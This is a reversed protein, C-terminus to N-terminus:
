PNRSESREAPIVALPRHSDRRSCRSGSRRSSRRGARTNAPSRRSPRTRGRIWCRSSVRHSWCSRSRRSRGDRQPDRRGAGQHHGEARRRARVARQLERGGHGAIRGRDRDPHRARGCAAQQRRDRPHPGQRRRPIAAAARRCEADDDPHPGLRSRDRRAGLGQLSHPHDDARRDIGQVARGVSQDHHRRRGLRLEAQRPQGQRLRHVGQPDERAGVRSRRHLDALDGHHLDGPFGEGSRLAAQRRDGPHHGPHQLQRVAPDRWEQGLAGSRDRRDRRRRRRQERHGRHRVQGEDERGLAPRGRRDRRGALVARDAQDAARPLRRLGPVPLAATALAAATRLFFRRDM